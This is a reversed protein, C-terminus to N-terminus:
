EICKVTLDALRSTVPIGRSIYYSMLDTGFDIGSLEVLKNSVSIHHNQLMKFPCSFLEYSVIQSKATFPEVLSSIIVANDNKDDTIWHYLHDDYIAAGYYKTINTYLKGNCKKNYITLKDDVVLTVYQVHDIAYFATNDSQLIKDTIVCLRNTVISDKYGDYLVYYM